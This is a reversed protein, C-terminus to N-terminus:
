GTFMDAMRMRELFKIIDFDSVGNDRLIQVDWEFFDARQSGEAVKGLAEQCEEVCDLDRHDTFPLTIIQDFVERNFNM